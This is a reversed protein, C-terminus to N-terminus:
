TPMATTTCVTNARARPADLRRLAVAPYLCSSLRGCARAPRGVPVASRKKGANRNETWVRLLRATTDAMLRKVSRSIAVTYRAIRLRRSM